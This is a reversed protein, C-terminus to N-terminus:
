SARRSPAGRRKVYDGLLIARGARYEAAAAKLSKQFEPDLEEVIDEFDDFGLLVASPRGSRTIVFRAKKEAALRLFRGFQDKVQRSTVTEPM